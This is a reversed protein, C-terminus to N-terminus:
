RPGRQDVGPGRRRLPTRHRNSTGTTVTPTVTARVQPKTTPSPQHRNATGTPHRNTVTPSPLQESRPNQIETGKTSQTTQPM